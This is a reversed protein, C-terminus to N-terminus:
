DAIESVVAIDHSIFLYALGRESQLDMLLNLIQSQISVDLASVPEDAIILAPELAMARAIAIRQRQGGSFEHPYRRIDDPSLGVSKLLHEVRDRREAGKAVGHIIFPEALIDGVRFRPNLSGFPDQFVIQIQRRAAKLTAGKAQLLESGQFQVNGRDPRDLLGICRALTTKGCGSEGVLALTEGAALHLSVNNVATFSGYTKTVAHADLLPAPPAASPKAVTM